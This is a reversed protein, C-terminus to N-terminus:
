VPNVDDSPQRKAPRGGVRVPSHKLMDEEGDDIGDTVRVTRNRFPINVTVNEGNFAVSTSIPPTM